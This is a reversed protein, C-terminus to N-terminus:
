KLKNESWLYLLLEFSVENIVLLAIATTLLESVNNSFAFNMLENAECNSMRPNLIKVLKLLNEDYFM